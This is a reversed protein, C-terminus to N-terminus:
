GNFDKRHWGFHIVKGYIKGFTGPITTLAKQALAKSLTELDELDADDPLPIEITIHGIKSM